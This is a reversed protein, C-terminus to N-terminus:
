MGFNRTYIDIMEGRSLRYPSNSFNGANEVRSVHEEIEDATLRLKVGAAESLLAKLKEGNIGVATYIENAKDTGVSTLENYTLFASEFAACAKGHPVGESLTISYGLPHPFGTGTHAIAMGALCSAQILTAREKKSYNDGHVNEGSFIVSTILKAAHLAVAASAPTSRPSMYSEISHCLADLATSMTYNANLSYTYKPDLLALKPYSSRSKFTKKVLGGSQTIVAYNNVESGTGATTPIAILPLSPATMIETNYLEAEKATPNAAYAAIAKAADIPSGGGIAIVFDAHLKIAEKAGTYCDEIRPNETIQDFHSFKIGLSSLAEKVDSLAGCKKASSKGTVILATNGLKLLQPESKLLDEGSYVTTPINFVPSIM